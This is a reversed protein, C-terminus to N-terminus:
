RLLATIAEGSLQDKALFGITDPTPEVDDRSSILLVQAGHEGLQAALDRGDGDPLNVDLLVLDPTHEAAARVAEAGDAAEAVVQFGECELLRRANARFGAHDDVILVRQGM